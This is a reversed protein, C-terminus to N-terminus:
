AADSVVPVLKRLRDPRFGWWNEGTSEVVIVPLSTYELDRVRDRAGPIEEVDIGTFPVGLRRLSTYTAQCGPCGRKSYVTVDPLPTVPTNM